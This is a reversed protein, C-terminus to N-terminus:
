LVVLVLTRTQAVLADPCKALRVFAPILCFPLSRLIRASICDIPSFFLDIRYIFNLRSSVYYKTIWKVRVQDSKPGVCEANANAPKDMASM